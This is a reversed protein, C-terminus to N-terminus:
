HSHIDVSFLWAGAGAKAVAERAHGVDAEAERLLRQEDLLQQYQDAVIDDSSMPPGGRRPAGPPRQLNPRPLRQRFAGTILSADGARDIVAVEAPDGPLVSAMVSRVDGRNVIPVDNITTVIDGRQLGLSDATGGPRVHVILRGDGPELGRDAQIALPVAVLFAGLGARGPEDYGEDEVCPCASACTLLAIACAATWSTPITSCPM